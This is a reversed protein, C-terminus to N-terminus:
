AFYDATATEDSPKRTMADFIPTLV